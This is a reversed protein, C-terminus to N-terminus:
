GGIDLRGSGVVLGSGSLRVRDGAVHVVLRSPRGAAHGQDIVVDTDDPVTGARVLSAALPGAATGTAPDEVIGATPNFFRAYAHAGDLAGTTYVYAGEGGASALVARLAQQDPAVRDVVARDRVPVMLHGVGTAVVQPMTGPDLDPVGIALAAALADRDTVTSGYAPARQDMAVHVAGAGADTVEVGLLDDGIQQVHHGAGFRGADALWLWAGLANHGAGGVEVGAATFSRLRVQAGDASPRLLFTTESQNFERAVACMRIVDVDDADPVVTLPNGTLPRQAFVDVYHFEIKEAV